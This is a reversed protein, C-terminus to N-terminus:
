AEEGLARLLMVIAEETREYAGPDSRQTRKVDYHERWLWQIREERDPHTTRCEHLAKAVDFPKPRSRGTM